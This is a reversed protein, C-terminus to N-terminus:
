GNVAEENVALQVCRHLINWCLEANTKEEICSTPDCLCIHVGMQVYSQLKEDQSNLCWRFYVTYAKGLCDMSKVVKHFFGKSFM